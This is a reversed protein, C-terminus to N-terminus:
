QANAEMTTSVKPSPSGPKQLSSSSSLDKGKGNSGLKVPSSLKTAKPVELHGECWSGNVAAVAQPFNLSKNAFHEKGDGNGSIKMPSILKPANLMEVYGEQVCGNVSAITSPFAGKCHSSTFYQYVTSPLPTSPQKFLAPCKFYTYDLVPKFPKHLKSAEQGELQRGASNVAGCDRILDKVRVHRNLNIVSVPSAMSERSHDTSNSGSMQRFNKRLEFNKMARAVVINKSGLKEGNLFVMARKAGEHSDFNIFGFGKSKGKEDKMIVGNVVKGYDSFKAKLADETIDEDINKVYLSKFCGEAGNRESQRLFKSVYLKKGALSSDHLAARAAVASEESEFQVFGFGKSIGNESAVKCSVVSGYKSFVEELLLSTISKDLNKVFLNGNNNNRAVPDRENWMVRIPKGKLLTHNLCKLANFAHCPLWFNVYAYCLSRGSPKHRCLHVSLLPAVRSFKDTLDKEVVDPHLDGVYLSTRLTTENAAM